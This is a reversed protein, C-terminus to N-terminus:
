FNVFKANWEREAAGVRRFVTLQQKGTLKKALRKFTSDSLVQVEQLNEALNKRIFEVVKRVNSDNSDDLLLLGKDNLLKWAYFVDVFVDEFLHSGDVYILDIRTDEALLQALAISSPKTLIKVWPTLASKELKLRAVGDWVTDQFPDIAIHSGGPMSATRHYDAILLCSAGFALGVELTRKPHETKLFSQIAILNNVTSASVAQNFKKGTRGILPGGAYLEALEPLNEFM